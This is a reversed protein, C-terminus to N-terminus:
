PKDFTFMGDFKKEEGIYYAVAVFVNDAFTQHQWYTTPKRVIDDLEAEITSYRSKYAM